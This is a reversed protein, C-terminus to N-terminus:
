PEIRQSPYILAIVHEGKGNMKYRVTCGVLKQVQPIDRIAHMIVNALLTPKDDPPVHRPPRTNDPMSM